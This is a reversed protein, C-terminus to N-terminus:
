TPGGARLYPLGDRMEIVAPDGTQPSGPGPDFRVLLRPGDLLDVYALGVPSPGSHVVTGSWVTGTEPLAAEVM